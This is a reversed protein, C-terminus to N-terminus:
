KGVLLKRKYIGSPVSVEVLYMGDNFNRVDIATDPFIHDNYYVKEGLPNYIIVHNVISSSPVKFFLFDRTPNPYVDVRYDVSEIGTIVFPPSVSNCQDSGALAVSYSGSAGAFNYSRATAGEVLVGDRYWQYATAERFSVLTSGNLVVINEPQDNLSIQIHRAYVRSTVSDSATLTVVYDGPASFTHTADKTSATNFASNVDGFNWQWSKIKGTSTNIFNTMANQCTYRAEFDPFIVDTCNQHLWNNANTLTSSLGANVVGDVIDVNTVILNDFCMKEHSMFTISAKGPSQIAIKGAATALLKMTSLAHTTGDALTMSTGASARLVAISDSANLQLSGAAVDITGAYYRNNWTFQAPSVVHIIASDSMLTVGGSLSSATLSDINAEVIALSTNDVANLEKVSCVQGSLNLSGQNLQIKQVNVKGSLRWNGGNFECSAKLFNGSQISVSGDTAGNFELVGSTTVALNKDSVSFANQTKLRHSNLSLAAPKDTLWLLRNCAADATLNITATAIGDFSNGDMIVNDTISPVVNASAGGSTLSWHSGDNWNGTGNIWYYTTGSAQSSQYTVILSFNQLGDTLTGKHNVTITYKKAEPNDFEIKEVNDRFNDGTTAKSAPSFPDLIWPQQIKGAGDTIRVDLDNVLMLNTPDLAARVPTGPVDTWCITVTIKQNAKAYIDQSYTQGNVLTLEKVIVNQDDQRMLVKAAAEVDLLGWGYVYDPGPGVGAEKTTHIALGKLTSSRMYRGSHLKSYLEQLLVLSGTVNPTAMSTGTLTAYQDTGVNSCSLLNVGAGVVDPKIRGDDTPGWSSFNSMVVSSADAYSTVKNIAGVTIINKGVADPIICDFGTGGNGDPPHTGDGVEIRDNGAAWVITYYPALLALEDLSQARLDYFGFRYDEDKSINADGTWMWIGNSKTWGTPTGYSHNSFLLGSQDTRALSAMESEDNDFYWTTASAKPAMGKALPNVGAAIITGTVHIMHLTESPGEKTLIRNGLEIHNKVLGDDWIGVTMNEGELDLGISEGQLRSAGTTIAAGANLASRYIPIGSPSVDVLLLDNSLANRGLTSRERIFKQIRLQRANDTQEHYARLSQLSSHRQFPQGFSAFCTILLLSASLTRIMVLYVPLPAVILIQTRPSKYPQLKNRVIQCVKNNWDAMRRRVGALLGM